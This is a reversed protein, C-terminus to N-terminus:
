PVERGEEEARSEELARMMKRFAQWRAGDDGLEDGSLYPLWGAEIAPLFVGSDRDWVGHRHAYPEYGPVARRVAEGATFFLLAHDLGGGFLMEEAKAAAVLEEVIGSDFQHGAEHFLLELGAHTGRLAPDLSSVVLLRGYTSYAGAWNAFASIQVPYGEEPWTEGYAKLLFDLVEEGHAALLGSAAEAWARNGERHAPWWARLYLPAANELAVKWAPDIEVGELSEAEGAERLRHSAKLLKEDSVMDLRSPGAAYSAVAERWAAREEASLRALGREEEDPAGAVARRGIDPMGAEVRGLVYLFHHLNLWFGDTTLQFIGRVVGPHGADGAPTETAEVPLPLLVILAALLLGRWM